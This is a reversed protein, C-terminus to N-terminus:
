NLELWDDGVIPNSRKRLDVYSQCSLNITKQNLNIENAVSLLIAAMLLSHVTIKNQKSQQIIAETLSQDLCHNVFYGKREHIPVLKEINIRSIRYIKKKIKKDFLSAAGIFYGLYKQYKNDFNQYYVSSIDKLKQPLVQHNEELFEYHNFISNHLKVASLGDAISHHVITIFYYSLHSPYSLLLCKLLCEDPKLPQNFYHIVTTEWSQNDSNELNELIIPKTGFEKFKLQLSNVDKLIRCNLLPYNAQVFYLSNQLNEVNIRGKIQSVTAISFCGSYQNLLAMGEESSTLNRENNM